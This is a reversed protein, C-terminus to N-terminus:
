RFFTFLTSLGRFIFLGLMLILFWVLAPRERYMTNLEVILRQVVVHDSDVNLLSPTPQAVEAQDQTFNGHRSLFADVEAQVEPVHVATRLAEAVSVQHDVPLLYLSQLWWAVFTADHFSYAPWANLSDDSRSFNSSM